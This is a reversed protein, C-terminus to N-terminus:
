YYGMSSLWSDLATKAMDKRDMRYEDAARDLAEVIRKPLVLTLRIPRTRAVSIIESPSAKPNETSIDPLRRTQEPTLEGKAIAEAITIAKNKDFTTESLGALTSAEAEREKLKGEEVMQVIEEPVLVFKLYKLVDNRSMHLDEMVKEISGKYKQYLYQCVTVTDRFPLSRRRENEVISVIKAIMSDVPEIIRAEVEKEGQKRLAELRRRGVVLQYKDDKPFVVIPQILGLRGISTELWEDEEIRTRVYDSAIEIKEIPIKRYGITKLM